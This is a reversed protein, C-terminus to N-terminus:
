NNVGPAFNRPKLINGGGGPSPSNPLPPNPGIAGEINNLFRGLSPNWRLKVAGTPGNRQKGIIVEALGKIDPNERDYYDERYLMMIVDADQEISGSERLDSLMPRRDSRGEVGRNLQALTIVPVQLEKALAKLRRSIESVARERSEVKQKLDMIQLYDVVILDLGMQAKMRRSKARVEVPSIGSSDDVYLTCESLMAATNILKPWLKDPIHGNRLDSQPIGSESSLIRLMLSEKSMEVSFYAVKKKLRIAVHQAINLSFATKGMSPRAAIITLEGPQFGSTMDDLETFGTEVGTISVKKNYLDEIRELSSKIIESSSILGQTKRQEALAFIDTEITDFFNEIDEYDQEFASDIHKTSVHILNRLMAKEAVIHAYSAINAASPTQNIIDALYSAGGIIELEDKSTLLNSITILDTPQNRKQLEEIAAYIKRHAGKYFDESRLIDCVEDWSAPDLMLGGLVSQEAEINQPPLRTAM